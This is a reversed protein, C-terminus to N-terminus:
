EPIKETATISGCTVEFAQGTYASTKIFRYVRSSNEAFLQTFKGDSTLIGAMDPWSNDPILGTPFEVTVNGSLNETWVTFLVYAENEADTYEDFDAPCEALIEQALAYLKKLQVLDM